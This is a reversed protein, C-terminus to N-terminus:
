GYASVEGTGGQFEELRRKRRERYSFRMICERFSKGNRRM